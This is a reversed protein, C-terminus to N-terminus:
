KGHGVRIREAVSKEELKKLLAVHDYLYINHTGDTSAIDKSLSIIKADEDNGNTVNEPDFKIIYDAKDAKNQDSTFEYGAAKLLPALVLQGWDENESIPMYCLGKSQSKTKTVKASFQHDPNQLIYKTNIIEIAKGEYVIMGEISPDNVDTDVDQNLTFIDLVDEVAFFHYKDGYKIKLLKIQGTKPANSLWHVSYIKDNQTLRMAGAQFSITDAEVEEMREIDSLRIARRRGQMDEFLLASPKKVATQNETQVSGINKKISQSCELINAIGNVDLLMIPKGSDPLSSGAYIGSKMVLPAVPRVVLEEHDLVNDVALAYKGGIAPEIVVLNEIRDVNNNTKSLVSKNEDNWLIESLRGFAIKEGRIDAIPNGGVNHLTINANKTSIIEVISSRAIAFLQDESRVTLAAIISLTLPLQIIIKLGQGVFNELVISGGVSEINNKVVDMGVGRGSISTVKDATSLGPEFIYNLKQEENLESWHAKTILNALVAKNGLKKLNIGAGDDSIEIIIQNGSQRAGLNITGTAPKGAAQREHAPEIGHSVSNRLIHTLPDRLAEVMERDVEVQSGKIVIDVPRKLETSVDRIMRPFVSFLRDISQMRMLSIIDRLESTTTSLRHFSSNLEGNDKHTRIQRSVENRALVMDSVINMLRDLLQLSVRVTKSTASPIIQTQEEKHNVVPVAKGQEEKDIKDDTAKADPLNFTAPVADMQVAMDHDDEHVHQESKSSIQELQCILMQDIDAVATGDEFSSAIMAIHDVITLIATVLEPEPKIKGDRAKSMVEEAAHSLNLLRPLGLFGCSGKVTHVFRFVEDIAAKDDPCREWHVLIGGLAEMSERTESIFDQLLEDM